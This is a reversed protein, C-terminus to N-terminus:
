PAAIGLCTAAMRLHTDTSFITQINAARAAGLHLGDLSRLPIRPHHASCHDLAQRAQREVDQGWPIELYRGQRVHSQFSGFLLVAGGPKIEGRQEKGVLAFYMEVRHLFSIAPIEPRTRILLLFHNSDPEPAYLKILASTDWYIAATM